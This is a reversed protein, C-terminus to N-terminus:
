VEGEDRMLAADVPSVRDDDKEDRLQIGSFYRGKNDKRDEIGKLRLQGEILDTLLGRFRKLAVPHIQRTGCFKAYNPYLKSDEFEFFLLEIDDKIKNATGVYTKLEHEPDYIVNEHLWEAIPNTALLNEKFDAMQAGSGRAKLISVVAEHDMALVWNMLGPIYPSFEKKLDRQKELSIQNKFYVPIRRRQLGSTYDKSQIPENAAIIVMAKPHFSNKSQVYKEEYRLPDGGTLSKLTSVEGGYREADTILVLRKMYISATEFRNKELYKLESTIANVAGIMQEALWIFTSKGTGGPGVLELFRHLETWGFLVACLFARLLNVLDPKKGAMEYLWDIIPQCDAIPNYEYPLQWTFGYSPDNPKLTKTIINLVGNKFPLLHRDEEKPNFPLHNRLLQAVGNFYFNRYPAPFFDSDRMIKSVFEKIDQRQTDSWFGELYQLWKETKKDFAYVNILQKTVIEAAASEEPNVPVKEDGGGEGKAGMAEDLAVIGVHLGKLKHRLNRYGPLDRRKFQKLGDLHVSRFAAGKDEECEELLWKQPLKAAEIQAKLVEIGELQHLDNFDTPETELDTFDPIAVRCNHQWAATLAKEHGPNWPEGNRGLTFQDNDGCIILLRSPHKAKIKKAVDALNGANFAILVTHGTAEFISAGTAFGECLCLTDDGKIWFFNGTIKGDALFKKDGNEKIFQISKIKKELTMAPIVLAKKLQRISHPQVGKKILYPHNPDAPKAKDWFHKARGQAYQARRKADEKSQEIAADIKKREAESLGSGTGNGSNWTAILGSKWDWICGAVFDGSSFARYRGAKDKRKATDFAHWRGDVRIPGPDWGHARIENEFAQINDQFNM